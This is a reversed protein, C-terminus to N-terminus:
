TGSNEEEKRIRQAILRYKEKIYAHGDASHPLTCNVCSKTGGPLYEFNGGCDRGLLYLPCYCFMCNFESEDVGKHCPFYECELNRFFEFSHQKM